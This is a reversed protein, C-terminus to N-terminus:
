STEPDFCVPVDHVLSVVDYSRRRPLHTASARSSSWLIAHVRAGPLVTRLLRCHDRPLAM